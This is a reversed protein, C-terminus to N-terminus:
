QVALELDALGRLHTTWALKYNEVGVLLDLEALGLRCAYAIEAAILLKGASWAAAERAFGGNWVCLSDPASPCVSRPSPASTSASCTRAACCASTRSAGPPSCRRCCRRRSGGTSRSRSAAGATSASTM